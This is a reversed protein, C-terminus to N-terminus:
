DYRDPLETIRTSSTFNLRSITALMSPYQSDDVTLETLWPEETAYTLSGTGGGNFVELDFGRAILAEAIEGRTTAVARVSRSRVVRAIPNTWRRFPNRDGLGAVQAEYGMLGVVRVGDIDRAAEYLAVVDAVTRVPSRRVGLHLRGSLPRLSM